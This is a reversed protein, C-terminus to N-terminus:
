RSNAYQVAMEAGEALSNAYHINLSSNKLLAKGEDVHTGEMRMIITQNGAANILGKALTECNMIGGFINVLIVKVQPDAAIIKFAESIKDVSAGGGVDLFNAPKGGYYEIIDMTAMALGAGNVMCGINGELAVYALDFERALAEQPSLQRSDFAAALNKHRYLANDDIAIKADLALLGGDPMSVLPNIELLSADLEMFCKGVRKVLDIGEERLPGEWGMFKAVELCQYSRLNGDLPIPCKLIAEPTKKAIEEIEMGGQPSAILIACGQKRDIAAGLYYEKLYTALPSVLLKEVIVGQKGTQANILRMGFLNKAKERAEKRDKAIVVGGAKGRGGAHVQVKIVVQDTNLTSLAEDLEELSSIVHFAPCLIGYKSLIEKAQFEHLNM